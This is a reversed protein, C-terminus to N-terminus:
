MNLPWLLIEGSGEGGPHLVRVRELRDEYLTGDKQGNRHDEEPTAGVSGHTEPVSRM